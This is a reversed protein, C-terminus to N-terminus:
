LFRSIYELIHFKCNLPGGPFFLASPTPSFGSSLSSIPRQRWNCLRDTMLQPPCYCGYFFFYNKKLPPGNNRRSESQECVCEIISRLFLLSLPLRRTSLTGQSSLYPSPPATTQKPANNIGKGSIPPPPPPFTERCCLRQTM